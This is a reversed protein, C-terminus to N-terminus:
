FEKLGAAEKKGFLGSPRVFLILLLVAIAIADKYALPMISISFAELLGIVIGGIVAGTSNGLGGLIAVTFGKIALSTGCDYQTQTIPSVVCGALAGIAASLMFSITVMNRTNIGCLRAATMNSACARMSRGTVTVRFFVGLLAVIIGSVGLVWLVQPSIYAGLINISTVESGTFYPLSRVKEDWVHLAIDRILISLGITIIVMNLVTPKKLRRIFIFDILAGVFSTIVVSALIAVPLPMFASLSIATMGGLMLFEGQAFNIIGTTNYIINFGIAVIAYISGNTIGSFIYQLIQEFPM